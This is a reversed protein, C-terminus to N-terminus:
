LCASAEPTVLTLPLTTPGSYMRFFPSRISHTANLFTHSPLWRRVECRRLFVTCLCSGGTVFDGM